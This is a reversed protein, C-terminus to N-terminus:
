GKVIDKDKGPKPPFIPSCFQCFNPEGTSVSGKKIVVVKKQM